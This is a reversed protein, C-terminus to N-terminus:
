KKDFIGGFSLTGGDNISKYGGAKGETKTSAGAEAGMEGLNIFMKVVDYDGLLGAQQLKAAMNKGGYTAVGRKLLEIKTSYDKGYEKKLAAQTEQAQAEFAVKKQELVNQGAAQLSQFFAKAQEDTLNNKFALERFVKAEDGEISYKDASEPKGLNRYFAEIEEASADKGPKVLSNGLKGELELYNKALDGIKEFKSLKEASEAEINGLQAMWAPHKVEGAKGDANQNTGTGNEGGAKDTPEAGPKDNQMSNMVNAIDNATEGATQTSTQTQNEDAM